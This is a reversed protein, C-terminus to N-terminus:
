VVRKELIDLLSMTRRQTPLRRMTKKIKKSFLEIEDPFVVEDELGGWRTRRGRGSPESLRYIDIGGKPRNALDSGATRFKTITGVTGIEPYGGFAVKGGKKRMEGKRAVIVKDGKKFEAM